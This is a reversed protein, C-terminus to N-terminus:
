NESNAFQISLIQAYDIEVQKKENQVIIRHTLYNKGSKVYNVKGTITQIGAETNYEIKCPAGSKLFYALLQDRGSAIIEDEARYVLAPIEDFPLFVPHITSDYTNTRPDVKIKMTYGLFTFGSQLEKLDDSLARETIHFHEAIEKRTRPKEQLYKLLAVMRESKELTKFVPFYDEPEIDLQYKQSVFSEINM